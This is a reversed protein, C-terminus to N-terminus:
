ARATSQISAASPTASSSTTRRFSTLQEYRRRLNSPFRYTEADTLPEAHKIVDYMIRAGLTTSFELFGQPDRPCHDGLWGGQTVMWRDGEMAMMFGIRGAAAAEARSWGSTAASIAQFVSSREPRIVSASAVEDSPPTGYGLEKLWQPSRSGFTGRRGRRSRRHARHSGRGTGARPRRHRAREADVLRM